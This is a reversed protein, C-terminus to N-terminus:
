ALFGASWGEASSRRPNRWVSRSIVAGAFRAVPCSQGGTPNPHYALNITGTLLDVLDTPGEDSIRNALSVTCGTCNAGALWVVAPWGKNVAALAGELKGLVSLPPGLPTASGICYKLFGRRSIQM